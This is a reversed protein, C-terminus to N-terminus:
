YEPYNEKGNYIKHPGVFYITDTSILINQDNKLKYNKQKLVIKITDSSRVLKEKNGIKKIQKEDLFQLEFQPKGTKEKEYFINFPRKKNLLQNNDDYSLRIKAKSIYLKTSDLLIFHDEIPFYFETEIRQKSLAKKDNAMSFAIVTYTLLNGIMLPLLLRKITDKFIVKITLTEIIISGICMLIYSAIWNINDFTRNNLIGDSITHWCLMAMMMLYIGISGSVLNAILSAKLAKKLPYKLMAKITFTEIVITALILFWFQFFEEAVYMAPWVMNLSIM